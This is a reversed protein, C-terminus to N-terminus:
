KKKPEVKPSDSWRIFGLPNPENEIIVDNSTAKTREFIVSKGSIIQSHGIGGRKVRVNGRAIILCKHTECLEIDGGAVVIARLLSDKSSVNGGAM